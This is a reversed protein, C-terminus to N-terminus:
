LEGPRRMILTDLLTHGVTDESIMYGAAPNYLRIVPLLDEVSQEALRFGVYHLQVDAVGEVSRIKAILDTILFTGNFNDRTYTALYNDIAAIVQGKVWSPSYGIAYYVDAEIKLRDPFRSSVKVKPGAFGGRDLYGQLMLIQDATLPQLNPAEGRAVKAEILMNTNQRLSCATIIRLSPDVVPYTPVFDILEIVQPTTESYQFRFIFDQLWPFNGVAAKSVVEEIEAQKIDWFTEHVYQACSFIFVWLRWIAVKSQSTLDSLFTEFSDGAPGYVNLSTQNEKEAIIANYIEPISRAM